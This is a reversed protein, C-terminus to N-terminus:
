FIVKMGSRQYQMYSLDLGMVLVTSVSLSDM